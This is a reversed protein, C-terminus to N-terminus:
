SSFLSGYEITYRTLAEQGPRLTIWLWLSGVTMEAHPAPMFGFEHIRHPSSLILHDLTCNTDASNGSCRITGLVSRKGDSWLVLRSDAGFPFNQVYSLSNGSVFAKEQIKLINKPIVFHGAQPGSRPDAPPASLLRLNEIGFRAGNSLVIGNSFTRILRACDGSFLHGSAPKMVTPVRAAPRLLGMAEDSSMRRVRFLEPKRSCLDASIGNAGVVTRTRSSAMSPPSIASLICLLMLAVHVPFARFRDPTQICRVAAGM